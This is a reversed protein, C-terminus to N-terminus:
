QEFPLLTFVVSFYYFTASNPQSWLNLLTLNALLLTLNRNNKFYIQFSTSPSLSLSSTAGNHWHKSLSPPPPISYLRNCFVHRGRFKSKCKHHCKNNRNKTGPSDQDTGFVVVNEEIQKGDTEGQLKRNGRFGFFTKKKERWIASSCSPSLVPETPKSSRLIPRDILIAPKLGPPIFWYSLRYTKM